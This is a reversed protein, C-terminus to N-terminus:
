ITTEWRSQTYHRAHRCSLRLLREVLAELGPSQLQGVARVRPNLRELPVSRGPPVVADGTGIPGWGTQDDHLEPIPRHGGLFSRTFLLGGLEGEDVDQAVQRASVNPDWGQ